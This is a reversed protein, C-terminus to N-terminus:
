SNIHFTELKPFMEKIVKVIQSREHVTEFCNTVTIKKLNKKIHALRIIFQIFSPVPLATSGIRIHSCMSFREQQCIMLKQTIIQNPPLKSIRGSVTKIPNCGVNSLDLISFIKPSTWFESFSICVRSLRIKDSQMLYENLIPWCPNPLFISKKINEKNKKINKEGFSAAVLFTMLDPKSM